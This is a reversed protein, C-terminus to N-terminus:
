SVKAGFTPPLERNFPYKQKDILASINNQMATITDPGLKGIIWGTITEPTVNAFPIFGDNSDPENLVTNGGISAVYQNERGSYIWSVNTILYSNVGTPVPVSTTNTIQWDFTIAM